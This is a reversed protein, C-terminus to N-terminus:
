VPSPNKQTYSESILFFSTGFAHTFLTARLMSPAVLMCISLIGIHKLNKGWLLRMITNIVMVYTIGLLVQGSPCPIPRANHRVVVSHASLISGSPFQRSHLSGRERRSM